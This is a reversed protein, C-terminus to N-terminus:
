RLLLRYESSLEGCEIILKMEHASGTESEIIAANLPILKEKEKNEITEPLKFRVTPGELNMNAPVPKYQWNMVFYRSGAIELWVDAQGSEAAVNGDNLLWLDVAFTEGSRWSFKPIRASILQNRCSEAVAHYAPKPSVPYNVLSNNALTPWPENYCWNLAMSCYPKQRRAEEYICKYGESQLWQSWEIMQQLDSPKGFYDEIM